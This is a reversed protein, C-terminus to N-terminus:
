VRLPKLQDLTAKLAVLSNKVRTQEHRSVVVAGTEQILTTLLVNNEHWDVSTVNISNVHRWAFKLLKAISSMASADRASVQSSPAVAVLEEDVFQFEIISNNKKLIFLIFMKHKKKLFFLIFYKVFTCLREFFCFLKKNELCVQARQRTRKHIEFTCRETM